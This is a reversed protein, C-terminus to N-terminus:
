ILNTSTHQHNVLKHHLIENTILITHLKMSNCYTKTLYLQSVKEKIKDKKQEKIKIASM